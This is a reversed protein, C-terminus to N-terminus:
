SWARRSLRVSSLEGCRRAAQLMVAVRSENARSGSVSTRRVTASRSATPKARGCPVLVITPKSADTSGLAVSALTLLRALTKM